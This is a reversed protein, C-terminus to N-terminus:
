GEYQITNTKEDYNKQNIKREGITIIGFENYDGDFLVYEYEGDDMNEFNVDSIVYYKGRNEITVDLDYNTHTLKNVLIIYVEGSIGGNHKPIEFSKTTKNVFIM